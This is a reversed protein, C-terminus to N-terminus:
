ENFLKLQADQKTRDHVDNLTQTFRKTIAILQDNFNVRKLNQIKQYHKLFRSLCAELAMIQGKKSDFIDEPDCKLTRSFVYAEEEAFVILTCKTFSVDDSKFEAIYRFEGFTTSVSKKVIYKSIKTKM